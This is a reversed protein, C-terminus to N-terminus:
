PLFLRTSLMLHDSPFYEENMVSYINNLSSIFMRRGFWVLFICLIVTIFMLIAPPIKFVQCIRWRSYRRYQRPILQYDYLETNFLCCKIGMISYINDQNYRAAIILIKVVSYLLILICLLLVMSYIIFYIFMPGNCELCSDCDRNDGKVCNGCRCSGNPGCDHVCSYGMQGRYNEYANKILVKFRHYLISNNYHDKYIQGDGSLWTEEVHYTHSTLIRDPRSEYGPTPMNSFTFGKKNSKNQWVDQFRSLKPLGIRLEDCKNKVRNNKRTFVQVPYQYDEYTNFDGVIIVNELKKMYIFNLVAISNECQQQRHYSFHVAIINLIKRRGLSIKVHLAIRKNTDPGKTHPLHQVTVELIPYKSLIGLGEKEWGKLRGDPKYKEVTNATRYVSWRFEPLLYQLETIQGKKEDVDSRAEQFVAIDSQSDRIMEAIRFKRVDWSFMVNWLNLTSVTVKGANVLNTLLCSVFIFIIYKFKFNIFYHM